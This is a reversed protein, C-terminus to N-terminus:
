EPTMRRAFFAHNAVSDTQAQGSFAPAFFLPPTITSNLVFGPRGVPPLRLMHTATASRAAMETKRSMVSLAAARSSHKPTRSPPGSKDSVPAAMTTKRPM